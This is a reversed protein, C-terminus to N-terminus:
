EVPHRNFQEIRLATAGAVAVPMVLFNLVPILTALMVAGGFGLSLFRKQRIVRRIDPFSLGQNGLPYDLYEISLMWASFIVWLVPAVLNIVPILTIVVLVIAIGAFLLMKKVEGTLAKVTEEFVGAESIPSRGTLNKEVAASLFSNFPSGVLNALVTFSFFVAIGTTIVFIFWLLSDLWALWDPLTPMLWALLVEFQAALLWILGAFILINIILPIVVHRKVGPKGILSLGRLLYSAGTFPNSIM